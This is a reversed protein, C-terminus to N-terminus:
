IHILMPQGSVAYPRGAQTRSRGAVVRLEVYTILRMGIQKVTPSATRINGALVRVKVFSVDSDSFPLPVAHCTHVLAARRPLPVAHAHRPM